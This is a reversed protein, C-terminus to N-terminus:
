CAAGPCAKEMLGNGRLFEVYLRRRAAGQLIIWGCSSVCLGCLCVLSVWGSFSSVELFSLVCFCILLLDDEADQWRPPFKTQSREAEQVMEPPRRPGFPRRAFRGPLAWRTWRTTWM